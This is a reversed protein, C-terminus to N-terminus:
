EIGGCASQLGVAFSLGVGNCPSGKTARLACDPRAGRWLLAIAQLSGM